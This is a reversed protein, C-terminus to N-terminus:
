RKEERKRLKILIVFCGDNTEELFTEALFPNFKKKEALVVDGKM